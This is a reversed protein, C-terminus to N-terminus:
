RRKNRLADFKQACYQDGLSKGKELWHLAKNIDPPNGNWGEEFMTALNVMARPHGDKASQLFLNLARGKDQAVPGVGEYYMCALNTRARFSGYAAAVQYISFATQFDKKQEAALGDQFMADINPVKYGKLKRLVDYASPRNSPLKSWCSEILNRYFEPVFNPIPETFGTRIKSIIEEDRLGNFALKSTLLEWLLIGLAYIDTTEFNQKRRFDFYEPPFIKYTKKVEKIATKVNIDKNNEIKVLGLDSLKAHGDRCVLVNESSLDRHYVGARHLFNLGSVIEIAMQHRQNLPIPRNVIYQELSNPIDEIVLYNRDDECCIGYFLALHRSRLKSLIAERLFQTRAADGTIGTIEKIAVNEDNYTGAYITGLKGDTIKKNIELTHFPIVNIGKFETSHAMDIKGELIQSFQLQMSAMQQAIIKEQEQKEMQLQQFQSKFDVNMQIIQQVNQKLDTRDAEADKRAEEDNLLSQVNLGLQLQQISETLLVNVDNFEENFTGAILVKTFWHKQTFRDVLNQSTKLTDELKRLALIYHDTNQSLDLGVVCECIIIINNVLRKCQSKNAHAMKLQDYVLFGAQCVAGVMEVAVSVAAGAGPAGANAAWGAIAGGIKLADIGLQIAVAGWNQLIELAGKAAIQANSKMREKKSKSKDDVDRYRLSTARAFEPLAEPFRGLKKFLVAKNYHANGNKEDHTIALDFHRLAEDINGLQHLSYGKNNFAESSTNCLSIAKDFARIADQHRGLNQYACGWHIIAQLDYFRSSAVWDFDKLAEQFNKLDTNLLGRNHAAQVNNPDLQLARTFDAVAKNPDLQALGRNNYLYSINPAIQIAKNHDLLAENYNGLFFYILGRYTLSEPENPTLEILKHFDLLAKEYSERQLYIVGRQRYGVPNKPDKKIVNKYKKKADKLKNQRKLEEAEGLLEAVTQQKKKSLPGM